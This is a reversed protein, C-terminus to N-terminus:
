SRKGRHGPYLGGTSVDLVVRTHGPESRHRIGNLMLTSPAAPVQGATLVTLALALLVAARRLFRSSLPIQMLMRTLTGSVLFRRVRVPQLSVAIPNDTENWPRSRGGLSTTRSTGSRM